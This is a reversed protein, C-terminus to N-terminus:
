GEPPSQRKRPHTFRSATRFCGSRSLWGGDLNLLVNAVMTRAAREAVDMGAPLPALPNTALKKATESDARYRSLREQCLCGM